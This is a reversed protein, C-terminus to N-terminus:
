EAEAKAKAEPLTFYKEYIFSNIYHEKSGYLVEDWEMSDLERKLEYSENGIKQTALLFDDDKVKDLRERILDAKQKRTREDQEFLDLMEGHFKSVKPPAKLTGIIIPYPDEKKCYNNFNEWDQIPSIHIRKWDNPFKATLYNIVKSHSLGKLLKIGMHLHPTGDNHEEQCCISYSSPPFQAVFDSKSLTSKPFTVEWQKIPNRNRSM